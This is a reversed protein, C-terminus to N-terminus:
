KSMNDTTQSKIRGSYQVLEELSRERQDERYCKDAPWKGIRQTELANSEEPKGEKMRTVGWYEGGQGKFSAKTDTLYIRMRCERKVTARLKKPVCIVKIIQYLEPREVWFFM